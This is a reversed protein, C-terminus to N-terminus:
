HNASSERDIRIQFGAAELRGSWEGKAPAIITKVDNNQLMWQDREGFGISCTVEIPAESKVVRDSLSVVFRHPGLARPNPDEAQFHLHTSGLCIREGPRLLIHHYSPLGLLIPPLVRVMGLHRGRHTLTPYPGPFVISNSFRLDSDSVNQIVAAVAVSENLKCVNSTPVLAYRLGRVPKGWLEDDITEPLPIKWENARVYQDDPIERRLGDLDEDHKQLRRKVRDLTSQDEIVEFLKANDQVVSQFEGFLENRDYVDAKTHMAKNIMQIARNALDSDDPNLMRRLDNMANTDGNRIGQLIAQEIEPWLKFPNGVYPGFVKDHYPDRRRMRHQVYFLGRRARYRIWIMEMDDAFERGHNFSQLLVDDIPKYRGPSDERPRYLDPLDRAHSSPQLLPRLGAKSFMAKLRDTPENAAGSGNGRLWVEQNALHGSLLRGPNNVITTSLHRGNPLREVQGSVGLGPIARPLGEHEAPIYNVLWLQKENAGLELSLTTMKGWPDDPDVYTVDLYGEVPLNPRYFQFASWHKFAGVLDVGRVQIDIIEQDFLSVLEKEVFAQTQHDTQRWAFLKKLRDLDKAELASRFERILKKTLREPLPKPQVSEPLEAYFSSFRNILALGGQALQKRELQTYPRKYLDITRIPLGYVTGDEKEIILRVWWVGRFQVADDYRTFFRFYATPPLKQQDVIRQLIQEVETSVHREDKEELAIEVVEDVTIAPQQKGVWNTSAARNFAKVASELSRTDLGENEVVCAYQSYDPEEAWASLCVAFCFFCSFIFKRYPNM